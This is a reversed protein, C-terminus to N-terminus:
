SKNKVYLDLYLKEYKRVMADINYEKEVREIGKKGATKWKDRNSYLDIMANKLFELNSLNENMKYDFVNSINLNTIDGYANPIVIGIDENRIVERASGVDTLILPLGYHMAEMVSISWGEILSPLLLANSIQYLCHMDENSVFELQIIKSQLGYESIKNALERYYNEELVPGVFIVKMGPYNKALERMASIVSIHSKLGSYGAVVLFVYDNEQIGLRTQMEQKKAESVSLTEFDVGNPIVHIKEPNIGFYYRSYKRVNKSVAIYAPIYRDDNSYASIEHKQLWVYNNHITSIVPIGMKKAIELGFNSYHTNIVDVNYDKLTEVFKEKSNDIPIVPIGENLCKDSIYGGNQVYAVFVNFKNRDLNVSLDYVVQELGGKNLNSALLLVNLKKNIYIAPQEKSYATRTNRYFLANNALKLIIELNNGRLDPIYFLKEANDPYLLNFSELKFCLIWDFAKIASEDITTEDIDQDIVLIKYFKSNESVTQLM